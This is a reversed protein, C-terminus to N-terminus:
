RALAPELEEEAQANAALPSNGRARPKLMWEMPMFRFKMLVLLAQIGHWARIKKGEDLTRPNYVIPVEHIRHGM